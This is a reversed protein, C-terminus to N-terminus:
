RCHHATVGSGNKRSNEGQLILSMAPVESLDLGVDQRRRMRAQKYELSYRSPKVATPPKRVLAVRPDAFKLAKTVIWPNLLYRNEATLDPISDGPACAEAVHFWIRARAVEDEPGGKERERQCQLRFVLDPVGIGCLTAGRKDQVIENTSKDVTAGSKKLLKTWLHAANRDLVQLEPPCAANTIRM